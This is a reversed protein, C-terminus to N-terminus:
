KKKSNHGNPMLEAEAQLWDALEGGSDGRSLYIYYARLQIEEYSPNREVDRRSPRKVTHIQHASQTM